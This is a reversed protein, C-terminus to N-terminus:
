PNVTGPNGSVPNGSGSAASLTGTALALRASSTQVRYVANWYDNQARDAAEEARLLETVTSLGSDYRNQNIRLSEQAQAIATRTIEVQQRATDLDYYARRVELRIADRLGDRAAAVQDAMANARALRARRAGGEFLDLQVEVGATWNNGGNWGISPSDTQWSGFANVKPGFASKAMAISTEGASVETQMRKMEPRNAFARQELEAISATTSPNATLTDAPQLQEDPSMGVALALAVESVALDNRARVADQKRMATATQASLLDSEVVMGSEVRARSRDEVSQATKLSAEAVDVNKAALLLAYYAETVRFVLEQDARDLTHGAAQEALSALRVQRVNQFSDFITWQASFRSSFDGIPTPRNLRNLAFDATSFRQQRLRTGFVFVPDNGRTGTESFALRPLLAARNERTAARAAMSQALAQRHAPNKELAMAVADSLTIPTQAFVPTTVILGAALVAVAFAIRVPAHIRM